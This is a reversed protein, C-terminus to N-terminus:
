SGTIGKDKFDSVKYTLERTTFGVPSPATRVSVLSLKGIGFIDSGNLLLDIKRVLNDRRNGIVGTHKRPDLEMFGKHCIVTVFLKFDQM